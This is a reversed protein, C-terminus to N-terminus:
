RNVSRTEASSNRQIARFCNEARMHFPLGHGFGGTEVVARRVPAPRGQPGAADQCQGTQCVAHDDDVGADHVDGDRRDAVAEARAQRRHLEDDRGVHDDDGAQHQGAGGRDFPVARHGHEPEADHQEPRRGRQAAQSGVAGYEDGHPGCLSQAGYQDHGGGQHHEGVGVAVGALAGSRDGDPRHDRAARDGESGGEAAGQHLRHAPAADEQDVYGDGQGDQPERCPVHGPVFLGRVPLRLVDRALQQGDDEEAAECQREGFALVQAPGPRQRHRGRHDGQDGEGDEDGPLATVGVGHDRSLQEPGGAEAAVHRDAQQEEDAVVAQHEGQADEELLCAAVVRDGHPQAEQGGGQGDGEHGQEGSAEAGLEAGPRYQAGSDGQGQEAAHQQGDDAAVGGEARAGSQDEDAQAEAQHGDRLDGQRHRRRGRVM